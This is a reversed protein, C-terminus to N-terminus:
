LFTWASLIFFIIKYVMNSNMFFISSPASFPLNPHFDWEETNTFAKLIYDQSNELLKAPPNNKFDVSPNPRSGKKNIVRQRM